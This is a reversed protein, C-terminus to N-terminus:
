WRAFRCTPLPAFSVRTALIPSSRRAATCTTTYSGAGNVKADITLNNTSCNYVTTGDNQYVTGSFTVGGAGDDTIEATMGETGWYKVGSETVTEGEVACDDAGTVTVTVNGSKMRKLTLSTSSVSISEPECVTPIPSPKSTPSPTPTVATAACSFQGNGTSWGSLDDELGTLTLTSNTCSKVTFELKVVEGSSGAELETTTIGAVRIQGSSIESVDFYSFGSVLDGKTFNDTFDLVSTDYSVEFQLAGVANPINSMSVTFNVTDGVEASQDNIELSQAYVKGIAALFFLISFIALYRIKM